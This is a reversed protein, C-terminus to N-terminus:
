ARVSRLLIELSNTGRPAQWTFRLSFFFLAIREGLPLFFPAPLDSLFTFQQSCLQSFVPSILMEEAPLKKFLQFNGFYMTYMFSITVSM